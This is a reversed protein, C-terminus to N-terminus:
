AVSLWELFVVLVDLIETGCNQTIATRQMSSEVAVVREEPVYSRIHQM